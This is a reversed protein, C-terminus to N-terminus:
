MKPLLSTSIQAQPILNSFIAIALTSTPGIHKTFYPLRSRRTSKEQRRPDPLGSGLGRNAATWLRRAQALRCACTGHTRKGAVM